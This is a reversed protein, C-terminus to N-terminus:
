KQQMMSNRMANACTKICCDVISYNNCQGVAKSVLKSSSVLKSLTMTVLQEVRKPLHCSSRVQVISTPPLRYAALLRECSAPDSTPLLCDPTTPTTTYIDYLYLGFKSMLLCYVTSLSTPTLLISVDDRNCGLVELHKDQPREVQSHPWLSLSGHCVWHNSRTSNYLEHLIGWLWSARASSHSQDVDVHAHYAARKCLFCAALTVTNVLKKCSSVCTVHSEHSMNTWSSDEETKPRWNQNAQRRNKGDVDPDSWSDMVHTM